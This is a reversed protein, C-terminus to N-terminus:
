TNTNNTGRSKVVCTVTRPVEQPETLCGTGKKKMGSNRLYGGVKFGGVKSHESMVSSASLQPGTCAAAQRQMKCEANAPIVGVTSYSHHEGLIYCCGQNYCCGLIYCCPIRVQHYPRFFSPLGRKSGKPVM